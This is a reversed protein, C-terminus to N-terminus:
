LKTGYTSNLLNNVQEASYGAKRLEAARAIIADVQAAPVKAAQLKTRLIDALAKVISADIEPQLEAQTKPEKSAAIAWLAAAGGGLVVIATSTRM